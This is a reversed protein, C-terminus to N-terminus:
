PTSHRTAQFIPVKKRLLLDPIYYFDIMPIKHKRTIDTLHEVAAITIRM